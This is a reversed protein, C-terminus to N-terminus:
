GSTRVAIAPTTNGCLAAPLRISRFPWTMPDSNSACPNTDSRYKWGRGDAAPFPYSWSRRASRVVRLGIYLENLAHLAVDVLKRCLIGSVRHRDISYRGRPRSKIWVDRGVVGVELNPAHRLGPAYWVLLQCLQDALVRVSPRKFQKTLGAYVNQLKVQGEILAAFYSTRGEKLRPLPGDTRGRCKEASSEPQVGWESTLRIMSADRRWRM